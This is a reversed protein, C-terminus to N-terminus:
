NLKTRTVCTKLKFADIIKEKITNRDYVKFNTKIWESDRKNFRYFMKSETSFGYLRGECEIFKQILEYAYECNTKIKHGTDDTVTFSMGVVYDEDINISEDLRANYPYGNKLIVISLEDKDIKIM